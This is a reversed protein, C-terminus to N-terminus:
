LGFLWCWLGRKHTFLKELKNVHITAIITIHIDCFLVSCDIDNLCYSKIWDFSTNKNFLVSWVLIWESTEAKTKHTNKKKRNKDFRLRTCTYITSCCTSNSKLTFNWRGTMRKISKLSCTLHIPIRKTFFWQADAVSVFQNTELRHLYISMPRQSTLFNLASDIWSVFYM